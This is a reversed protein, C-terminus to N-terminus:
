TDPSVELRFESGAEAPQLLGVAYITFNEDAFVEPLTQTLVATATGAEFITVTYTDPPVVINEPTAEGFNLTALLQGDPDNDGLRVDVGPADPSLHIIRLEASDVTTELDDTFVDVQLPQQNGVPNVLGAVTVTQSADAPVDNITESVIPDGGPPDSVFVEVTVDGAPAEAFNTASFFSVNAFLENDNVFLDVEPGDPVAHVARVSTTTAPPNVATPSTEESCAALGLAVIGANLAAIAGRCWIRQM